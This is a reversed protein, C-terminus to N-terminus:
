HKQAHCNMGKQQKTPTEKYRQRWRVYKCHKGLVKVGAGGKQRSAEM